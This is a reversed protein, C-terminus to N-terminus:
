KLSRYNGQDDIKIYDELNLSYLLSLLVEQENDSLANWWAWYKYNSM